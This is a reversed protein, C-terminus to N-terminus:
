YIKEGFAENVESIVDTDLPSSAVMKERYYLCQGFSSLHIFWDGDRFAAEGAAVARKTMELMKELLLDEIAENYYRM